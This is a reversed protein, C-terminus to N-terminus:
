RGVRIRPDIVGYLLDTALNALVIFGGYLLVIGQVLPFDKRSISDLVLRGMGPLNFVNEVVVTGAIVAGAQISFLTIIPILATRLTHRLLVAQGSLGKAHATRVYDERTVELVASR